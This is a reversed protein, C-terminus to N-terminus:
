DLGHLRLAEAPTTDDRRGEPIHLYGADKIAARIAALNVPGSGSRNTATDEGLTADCPLAPGPLLPRDRRRDRRRHGALRPHRLGRGPWTDGFGTFASAVWGRAQGGPLPLVGDRFAHRVLEGLGPVERSLGTGRIIGPHM